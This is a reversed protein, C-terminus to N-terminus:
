LNSEATKLMKLSFPLSLSVIRIVSSIAKQENMFHLTNIEKIHDDDIVSLIGDLTGMFLTHTNRFPELERSHYKKAKDEAQTLQDICLKITDILNDTDQPIESIKPTYETFDLKHDKQM